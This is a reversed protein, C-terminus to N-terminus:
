NFLNEKDSKNASFTDFSQRFKEFDALNNMATDGKRQSGTDVVNKSGSAEVSRKQNSGVGSPSFTSRVNAKKNSFSEHIQEKHRSYPIGIDSVQGLFPDRSNYAGQTSLLSKHEREAKTSVSDLSFRCFPERDPRDEQLTEPEESCYSINWFQVLQNLHSNQTKASNKIAFLVEHNIGNSFNINKAFFRQLM